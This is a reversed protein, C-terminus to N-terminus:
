NTKGPNQVFKFFRYQYTTSNVEPEFKSILLGDKTYLMMYYYDDDGLVYDEKYYFPPPLVEKREQDGVVMVYHEETKPNL